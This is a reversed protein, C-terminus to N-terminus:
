IFINRHITNEVNVDLLESTFNYSPINVCLEKDSHENELKAAIHCIPKFIFDSDEETKLYLRMFDIDLLKGITICLWQLETNTLPDNMTEKTNEFIDGIKLFNFIKNVKKPTLNFIDNGFVKQAWKLCEDSDQM